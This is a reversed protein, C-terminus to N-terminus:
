KHLIDGNEEVRETYSIDVTRIMVKGRFKGSGTPEIETLEIWGGKADSIKANFKKGMTFYYESNERLHITCSKGVMNDFSNERNSNGSQIELIGTLLKNTDSMGAAVAWKVVFYLIICFLIFTGASIGLEELM